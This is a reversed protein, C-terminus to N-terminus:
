TFDSARPAVGVVETSSGCPHRDDDDARAHVALHHRGRGGSFPSMQWVDRLTAM